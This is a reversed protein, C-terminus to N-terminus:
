FVGPVLAWTGGRYAEYDAGFAVALNAEELRIKRVYAFVVMALGIAALWEGTVLATGTYMALLGTYIPHRLRRYPGSCILRHEVKITIEGSWHRGLHRRAWIALCLGLGAVILGATMTPTAVPLFRGLGRLPAIVLLLGVNTLFVHVARSARAESVKAAAASRAAMEWYLSFFVWGVAALALHRHTLLAQDFWSAPLKIAIHRSRM